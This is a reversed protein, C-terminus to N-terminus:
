RPLASILLGGAKENPTESPTIRVKVNLTLTKVAGTFGNGSRTFTGITAMIM